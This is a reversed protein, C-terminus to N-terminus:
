RGIHQNKKEYEVRYGKAKNGNVCARRVNRANMHLYEACQVSSPFAKIGSETYLIVTKRNWGGFNPNGHLNKIGVRLVRKIKRGDMWEAMKRGKNFPVHGKLFNGNTPNVQPREPEIYLEYNNM